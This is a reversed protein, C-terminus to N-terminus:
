VPRKLYCAVKGYVDGELGGLTHEIDVFKGLKSTWKGSPLQRAAHKPTGTHTGDSTYIAAKLFGSELTADQAAIFGRTEYARIYAGLKSERPVGAPWYQFLIPEWWRNNEGAAWAICNYKVDPDSTIQFPAHNLGPFENLLRAKIEALISPPLL